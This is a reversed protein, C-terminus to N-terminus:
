FVDLALRRRGTSAVLERWIESEVARAAASGLTEVHAHLEVLLARLASNEAELEAVRLGPDSGRAAVRLREALDDDEIAAASREFLARLEANEEVRRAAAREYEERAGMLLAALGAVSSQEYSGAALAPGTRLMLHAACVDLLRAPDPKM